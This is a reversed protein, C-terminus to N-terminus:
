ETESAWMFLGLWLREWDGLVLLSVRMVLIVNCPFVRRFFLVVIHSLSLPCPHLPNHSFPPDTNIHFLKRELQPTRGVRGCGHGLPECVRQAPPSGVLVVLCNFARLCHSPFLPLLPSFSPCGALWGCLCCSLLAKNYLWVAQGLRWWLSRFIGTKLCLSPHTM